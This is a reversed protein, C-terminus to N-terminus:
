TGSFFEVRGCHPCWQMELLIVNESQGPLGGTRFPHRGQFVLPSRCSSCNRESSAPKVAEEMLRPAPPLTM